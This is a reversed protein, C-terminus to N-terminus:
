NIKTYDKPVNYNFHVRIKKVSEIYIYLIDNVYELFGALIPNRFIYNSHTKSILINKYDLGTNSINAGQDYTIDYLRRRRIM